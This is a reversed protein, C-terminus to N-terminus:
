PAAVTAATWTGDQPHPTAAPFLEAIEAPLVQAQAARILARERKAEDRLTRLYRKWQRGTTIGQEAMLRKRIQRETDKIPVVLRGERHPPQPHKGPDYYRMARGPDRPAGAAAGGTQVAAILAGLAGIPLRKPRETM